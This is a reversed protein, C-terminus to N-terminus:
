PYLRVMQWADGVREFREREHLRFPRSRWFEIADAELRFGSWHPPRPVAGTAFRADTERLRRELLDYGALPESQDSAWAGLQSIRPRTAFYADAEADPVLSVTGEVRVQQELAQWHFCLAAHRNGALERGKRSRLNTYFVFGEPGVSKLLVVRASPRGDPGVTAVTMATPEPLVARDLAEAEALLAAFRAIPDSGAAARGAASGVRDGTTAM